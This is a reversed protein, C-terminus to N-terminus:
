VFDLINLDLDACLLPKSFSSFCHIANFHVCAIVTLSDIVNCYSLSFSKNVYM